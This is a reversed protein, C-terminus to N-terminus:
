TVGKRDGIGSDVVGALGIGIQLDEAQQVTPPGSQITHGDLLCGKPILAPNVGPLMRNVGFQTEPLTHFATYRDTCQDINVINGNQLLKPLSMRSGLHADPDVRVNHRHSSWIEVPLMSELNPMEM